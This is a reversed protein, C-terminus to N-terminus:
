NFKILSARNRAVRPGIVNEGNLLEFPISKNWESVFCPKPIKQARRYIVNGVNKGGSLDWCEFRTGRCKIRDRVKRGVMTFSRRVTAAISTFPISSFFHICM